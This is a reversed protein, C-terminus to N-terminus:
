KIDSMKSSTERVRPSQQHSYSELQSPNAQHEYQNMPDPIPENGLILRVKKSACPEPEPLSAQEEENEPPGQAEEKFDGLERVSVKKYQDM